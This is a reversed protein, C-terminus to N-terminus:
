FGAIYSIEISLPSVEGINRKSLPMMPSSLDLQIGSSIESSRFAEFGLCVNATFGYYYFSNITYIHDDNSSLLSPSNAYTEYQWSRYLGSGAGFYFSSNSQPTTYKLISVKPYYFEGISYQRRPEEIKNYSYSFTVDIADFLINQLRDSRVGLGISPRMRTKHYVTTAPGVKLMIREPRGILFLDNEKPFLNAINEITMTSFGMLPVIALLLFRM